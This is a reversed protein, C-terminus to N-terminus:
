IDLEEVFEANDQIFRFRHEANKGMLREILDNAIDEGSQIQADVIQDEPNEHELTAEAINQAQPLTVRL